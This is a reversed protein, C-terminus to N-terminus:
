VPPNYLIPSLLGYGCGRGTGFFSIAAIDARNRMPTSRPPV